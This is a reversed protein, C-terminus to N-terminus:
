GGLPFIGLIVINAGNNKESICERIEKMKRDNLAGWVSLSIDGYGTKRNDIQIHYTIKYWRYKNMLRRNTKM